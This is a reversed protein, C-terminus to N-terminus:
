EFLVHDTGLRPLVRFPMLSVHSGVMASQLVILGSRAQLINGLVREQPVGEQPVSNAWLPSEWPLPFAAGSGSPRPKSPHGAREGRDM